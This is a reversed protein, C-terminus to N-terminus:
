EHIIKQGNYQMLLPYHLDFPRNTTRDFLRVYARRGKAKPGGGVAPRADRYFQKLYPQVAHKYCIQGIRPGASYRFM